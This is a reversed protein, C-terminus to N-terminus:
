IDTGDSKRLRVVAVWEGRKPHANFREAIEECAAKPAAPVSLQRPKTPHELWVRYQRAAYKVGGRYQPM